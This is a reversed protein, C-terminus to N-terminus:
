PASELLRAEAELRNADAQTLALARLLRERQAQLLQMRRAPSVTSDQPGTSALRADPTRASATVQAMRREIDDLASQIRDAEDRAADARERLDDPTPGRVVRQHPAEVPQPHDLRDLTIALEQARVLLAFLEGHLGDEGRAHRAKLQEIRAAVAELEARVVERDPSAAALLLALTLGLDM